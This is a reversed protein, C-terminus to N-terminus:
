RMRLDQANVCCAVARFVAAPALEVIRARLIANKARGDGPLKRLAETVVGSDDAPLDAILVGVFREVRLGAALEVIPEPSFVSREVSQIAIPRSGVPALGVISPVLNGQGGIAAIRAKQKVVAAKHAVGPATELLHLLYASGRCNMVVFM